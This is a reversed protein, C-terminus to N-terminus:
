TSLFTPGMEGCLRRHRLAHSIIASTMWSRRPHVRHDKCSNAWSREVKSAVLSDNIGTLSPVRSMVWLFSQPHPLMWRRFFSVFFNNLSWCHGNLNLSSYLFFRSYVTLYNDSIFIKMVHSVENWNKKKRRALIKSMWTSVKRFTFILLQEPETV